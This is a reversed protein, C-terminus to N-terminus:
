TEIKSIAEWIGDRIPKHANQYHGGNEEYKSWCQGFAPLPNYSHLVPHERALNMPFLIIPLIQVEGNRARALARPLEVEMIYRSALFEYSLLCVFIDMKDLADRIEKDWRDGAKLENDHWARPIEPIAPQSRFSLVPALRKFWVTNEHSYSVFLTVGKVPKARKAV